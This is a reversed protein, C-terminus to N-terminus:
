GVMKMHVGVVRNQHYDLKYQQFGFKMFFKKQVNIPTDQKNEGFGVSGVCELFLKTPDIELQKEVSHLYDLVIKMMLTGLGCGKMDRNVMVRSFNLGEGKPTIVIHGIYQNSIEFHFVLRPCITIKENVLSQIDDHEIKLTIENYEFTTNDEFSNVLEKWLECKTGDDFSVSKIKKKFGNESLDKNLKIRFLFPNKLYESKTENIKQLVEQYTQYNKM